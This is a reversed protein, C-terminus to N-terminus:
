GKYVIFLPSNTVLGVIGCRKAAIYNYPAAFSTYATTSLCSM